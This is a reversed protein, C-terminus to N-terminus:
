EDPTSHYFLRNRESFAHAGIAVVSWPITVSELNVCDSFAWEGITKVGAIIVVSRVDSKNEEWPSNGSSYDAMEGTGSITLVGSNDLSWSVKEGCTGHAVEAARATGPLLSLAVCLALLGALIRNKM